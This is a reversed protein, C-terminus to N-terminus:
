ADRRLRSLLSNPDGRDLDASTFWQNRIECYVLLLWMKVVLRLDRSGQLTFLDVLRDYIAILDAAPPNPAQRKLRELRILVDGIITKTGAVLQQFELGHQGNFVPVFAINQIAEVQIALFLLLSDYMGPLVKAPFATDMVHFVTNWPRQGDKARPPLGHSLYEELADRVIAPEHADNEEKVPYSLPLMESHHAAGALLRLATPM